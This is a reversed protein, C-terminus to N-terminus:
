QALRQLVAELSQAGVGVGRVQIGLHELIGAKCGQPGTRFELLDEGFKTGRTLLALRGAEVFCNGVFNGVFIRQMSTRRGKSPKRECVRLGASGGFRPQTDEASGASVVASRWIM